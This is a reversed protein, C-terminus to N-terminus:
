GYVGAAFAATACNRLMFNFDVELAIM